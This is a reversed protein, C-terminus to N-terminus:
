PQSGTGSSTPRSAPGEATCFVLPSAIPRRKAAKLAEVAESNLVVWRGDGAKDRRVRFQGSDIDV